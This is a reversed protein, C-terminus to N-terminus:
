KKSDAEAQIRGIEDSLANELKVGEELDRTGGPTGMMRRMEAYSPAPVFDHFRANLNIQLDSMKAYLGLMDAASQTADDLQAPTM